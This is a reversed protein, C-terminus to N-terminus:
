HHVKLQVNEGSNSSFQGSTLLRTVHGPQQHGRSGRKAKVLLGLPTPFSGFWGRPPGKWWALHLCDKRGRRVTLKLIASSMDAQSMVRGRAQCLVWPVCNARSLVTHFLTIKSQHPLLM